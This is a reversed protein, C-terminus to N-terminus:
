ILRPPSVKLAASVSGGNGNIFLVGMVCSDTLKASLPIRYEKDGTIGVSNHLANIANFGRFLPIGSANWAAIQAALTGTVLPVKDFFLKPCVQVGAGSVGDNSCVWLDELTLGRWLPGLKVVAVANVFVDSYGAFM